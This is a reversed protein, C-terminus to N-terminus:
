IFEGSSTKRSVNRPSCNGDDAVETQAAYLCARALAMRRRQLKAYPAKCIRSNNNNNNQTSILQFNLLQPILALQLSHIRQLFPSQNFHM